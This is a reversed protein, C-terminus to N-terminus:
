EKIVKEITISKSNSIKFAYIGKPFDSLSINITGNCKPVEKVIRGSFDYISVTYAELSQNDIYILGVTPNPYLKIKSNTNTYNSSIINQPLNDDLRKVSQLSSSSCYNNDISIHISGGNKSSIM